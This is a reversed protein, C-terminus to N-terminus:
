WGDNTSALFYSPNFRDWTAWEIEAHMNWQRNMYSNTRCDSLGLIGSLSGTLLSSSESPHWAM